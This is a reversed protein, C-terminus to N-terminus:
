KQKDDIRWNVFLVDETRNQEDNNSGATLSALRRPGLPQRTRTYDGGLPRAGHGREPAGQVRLRLPVGEVECTTLECHYAIVLSHPRIHIACLSSFISPHIHIRHHILSSPSKRIPKSNKRVSCAVNVM